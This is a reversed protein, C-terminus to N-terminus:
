SVQVAEMELLEGFVYIREKALVQEILAVLARGRQSKALLCFQEYAKWDM